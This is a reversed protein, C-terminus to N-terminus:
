PDHGYRYERAGTRASSSSKACSGSSASFRTPSPAPANPPWAGSTSSCRAMSSRRSLSTCTTPLGLQALNSVYPHLQYCCSLFRAPPTCLISLVTANHYSSPTMHNTRREAGLQLSDLPRIHHKTKQFLLNLANYTWPINLFGQLFVKCVKRNAAKPRIGAGVVSNPNTAPWVM